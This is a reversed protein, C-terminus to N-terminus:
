RGVVDVVDDDYENTLIILGIHSEEVSSEPWGAELAQSGAQRGTSQPRGAFHSM